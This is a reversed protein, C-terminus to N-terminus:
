RTVTRNQSQGRKQLARGCVIFGMGVVVFLGGAFWWYMDWGPTKLPGLFLILVGFMVELLGCLQFVKGNRILTASDLLEKSQRDM